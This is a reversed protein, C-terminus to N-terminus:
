TLIDKLRQNLTEHNNDAAILHNRIDNVSSQLELGHDRLENIQDVILHVNLEHKDVEIPQKKEGQQVKIEENPPQNARTTTARTKPTSAAKSKGTGSSKKPPMVLPAIALHATIHIVSSSPTPAPVLSVFFFQRHHRLHHFNRGAASILVALSAM